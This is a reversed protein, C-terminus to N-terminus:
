IKYGLGIRFINFINKPKAFYKSDIPTSFGYENNLAYDLILEIFVHDTFDFGIGASLYNITKSHSKDIIDNKILEERNFHINFGFQLYMNKLFYKNLFMGLEFGSYDNANLYGLRLAANIKAKKNLTGNIFLYGARPTFFTYKNDYNTVTELKETHLVFADLKVGVNLSPQSYILTPLFVIILVINMVNFNM